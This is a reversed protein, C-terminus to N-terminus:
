IYRFTILSMTKLLNYKSKACVSIFFINMDEPLLTVVIVM